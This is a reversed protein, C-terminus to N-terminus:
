KPSKGFFNQKPPLEILKEKSICITQNSILLPYCVGFKLWKHEKQIKNFQIATFSTSYSNEFPYDHTFLQKKQVNKM